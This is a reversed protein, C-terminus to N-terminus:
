INASAQVVFSFTETVPVALTGDVQSLDLHLAIITFKAFWKCNDTPNAIDQKLWLAPYPFWFSPGLHDNVTRNVNGSEITWTATLYAVSTGSGSTTHNETVGISYNINNNDYYKGPGVLKFEISQPPTIDGVFGAFYNGLLQTYTNPGNLIPGIGGEGGVTLTPICYIDADFAANNNTSNWTDTGPPTANANIIVFFMMIFVAGCFSQLSKM